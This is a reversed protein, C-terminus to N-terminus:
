LDKFPNSTNDILVKGKYLNTTLIKLVEYIRGLGINKDNQKIHDFSNCIIIKSFSLNKIFDLSSSFNFRDLRQLMKSSQIEFESDENHIWIYEKLKNNITLYGVWNGENIPPVHIKGNFDPYGIDHHHDINVIKESKHIYKLIQQHTEIFIIQECDVFKPTLFKFLEKYQFSSQIWDIDVSLIM